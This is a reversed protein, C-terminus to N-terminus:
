FDFAIMKKMMAVGIEMWAIAIGAIMRGHSTTWLLSIYNPSAVYLAGTVLFPVAGIIAASAKAEMSMAGIKGKMKKRERLVRSLNAIAESLNGGAKGQINIVIAFFNTETIPVRTALREVAESLSLGLSQSEVIKRFESKVPESAEAAIIRVTDGLPLGAKVGRVIIDMANPFNLVFKNIRRLRLRALVFNPLGLAAILAVAAAALVSHTKLFTLAGLALGLGASIMLFQQRTIALGAQEIRTQLNARSKGAKNELEKLSEAIQKKRAVRDLANATTRAKAEPRAVSAVRKEVRTDGGLLVMLAGGTAVALCGALLIPHNM